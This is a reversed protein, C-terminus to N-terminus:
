STEVVCIVDGFGVSWQASGIIVVALALGVLCSAAGYFYAHRRQLTTLEIAWTSITTLCGCFGDEIGQLLQCTIISGGIIDHDLSVHQLTYCTAYVIVGLMNAVFTGLPFWPIKGNLKLALYFRLLCGLPAFVLAFTAQGRWIDAGPAPPVITFIVVITWCAIAFFVALPDQVRRVFGFSLSPTYKETALAAHAGLKLAGTSLLITIILVALVTMFDYGGNRSVTSGKSAHDGPHNLPTAIRNALGLYMDRVFTSFSTFSGCFGTTLGIFLPMTKKFKTHQTRLEGPDDDGKRDHKQPKIPQRFLKRDESLFGMVLCGGFNAWLNSIVVLAGPYFTLWQVGLRVLTGLFAFFILYAVIYIQTAVPSHGVSSATYEDAASGRSRAEELSTNRRWEGSTDSAEVPEPGVIENLNEEEEEDLTSSTNHQGNSSSTNQRVPGNSPTCLPQSSTSFRADSEQSHRSELTKNSQYKNSPDTRQVPEPANLENLNTQEKEEEEDEDGDEDVGVDGDTWSEERAQGM